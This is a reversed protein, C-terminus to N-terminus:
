MELVRDWDFLGVKVKLLYKNIDAQLVAPCIGREEPPCGYNPMQVFGMM